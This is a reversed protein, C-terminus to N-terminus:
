SKRFKRSALGLGALGAGLLLFTSPEPVVPNVQELSGITMDDFGFFDIGSATNGFTIGSILANPDTEILGFYLVSGGAIRTGNPVTLVTALGNALALTVQGNFDGIDIGYFGFAAIPSSFAISFASSAEWYNAGSIPYRGVGNTGSTVTSVSGTGSITATGAGPFSIALPTGTNTAYSEFTETGVGVLNALFAAQAADANPHSALRVSEGGGLDEGFFTTPVAQAAGVTGLLCVCAGALIKSFKSM